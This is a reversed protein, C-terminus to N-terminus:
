DNLEVVQRAGRAAAAWGATVGGGCPWVSLAARERGGGQMYGVTTTPGVLWRAGDVESRCAIKRM